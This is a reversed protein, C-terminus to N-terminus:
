LGLVSFIATTGNWLFSRRLPVKCAIKLSASMLMSSSAPRSYSGGSIVKMTNLYKFIEDLNHREISSIKLLM